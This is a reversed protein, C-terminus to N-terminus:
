RNGPHIMELHLSAAEIAMVADRSWALHRIVNDGGFRTVKAMAGTGPKGGLKIVAANGSSTATAMISHRGRALVCGMNLRSVETLAAMSRCHPNGRDPHIVDFHQSTTTRTVIAHASRAFRRIVNGARFGTIIAMRCVAPQGGIKIVGIDSAIALAAVVTHRGRALIGSMNLRRIEALGAVRRGQPRRSGLDVVKFHQTCAGGTVIADGRRALCGIVYGALLGTVVAMRGVCPQRGVKVVHIDHICTDGAM